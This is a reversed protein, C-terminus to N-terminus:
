EKSTEKYSIRVINKCDFCYTYGTDDVKIVLVDKNIHVNWEIKYEKSKTYFKTPLPLDKSDIVVIYNDERDTLEKLTDYIFVSDM